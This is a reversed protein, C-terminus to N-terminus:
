LQRHDQECIVQIKLQEASLNILVTWVARGKGYPDQIAKLWRAIADPDNIRVCSGLEGLRFLIIRTQNTM